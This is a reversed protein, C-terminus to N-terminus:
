GMERIQNRDISGEREKEKWYRLAQKEWRNETAIAVFGPESLLAVTYHWFLTVYFYTSYRGVFM